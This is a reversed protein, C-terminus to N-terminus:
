KTLLKKWKKLLFFACFVKNKHIIKQANKKFKERSLVRGWTNYYNPFFIARGLWRKIITDTTIYHVEKERFATNVAAFREKYETEIEIILNHNKDYGRVICKNM